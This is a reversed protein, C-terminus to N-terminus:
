RGRAVSKGRVGTLWRYTELAFWFQWMLRSVFTHVILLIVDIDKLRQVSSSGHGIGHILEAFHGFRGLIQRM